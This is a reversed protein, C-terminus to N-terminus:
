ELYSSLVKWNIIRDTAIEFELLMKGAIHGDEFSAMVWKEGLLNIEYFRMTGGLVAPYPILEAKNDLDKSIYSFPEKVGFQERLRLVAYSEEIEPTLLVKGIAIGRTVGIIYSIFLSFFFVILVILITLRKVNIKEM